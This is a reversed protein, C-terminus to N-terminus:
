SIIFFLNAKHLNLNMDYTAKNWLTKQCLSLLIIVAWGSFMMIKRLIPMADWLMKKESDIYRRWQRLDPLKIKYRDGVKGIFAVKDNEIKSPKKGEYEVWIHVLSAKLSYPINKAKLISAFVIARSECDGKQKEVADRASPVYWPVGYNKWDYEYKILKRVFIEIESPDNSIEDNILDVISPDIPFNAYRIFNRIFIYPNPYCVVFTWVLLLMITKLANRKKNKIM